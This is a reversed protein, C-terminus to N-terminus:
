KTGNNRLRSMMEHSETPNERDEISDCWCELAKETWIEELNM